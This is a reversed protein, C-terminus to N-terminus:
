IKTLPQNNKLQDGCVSCCDEFSKEEVKDKFYMIKQLRVKAKGHVRDIERQMRAQKLRAMSLNEFVSNVGKTRGYCIIVSYVWKGKM